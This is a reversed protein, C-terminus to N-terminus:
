TEAVVDFFESMMLAIDKGDRFGFYCDVNSM